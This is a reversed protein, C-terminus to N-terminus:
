GKVLEEVAPAKRDAGVWISAWRLELEKQAGSEKQGPAALPLMLATAVFRCTTHM